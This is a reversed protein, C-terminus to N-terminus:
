QLTFLHEDCSYNAFQGALGCFIDRITEYM